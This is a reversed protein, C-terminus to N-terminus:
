RESTHNLESTEDASNLFDQAAASSIYDLEDLNSTLSQKRVSRDVLGQLIMSNKVSQFNSLDFVEPEPFVSQGHLSEAQTSRWYDGFAEDPKKLAFTASSAAVDALQVGSSAKSDTFRLKEALNFTLQNERGNFSAKRCDSRGVMADMFDKGARLPKSDDCTVILPEMSEGSLNVLLSRLATVTLELIWKVAGADRSEGEFMELESQIEKENCIVITSIANLFPDAGGTRKALRDLVHSLRSSDRDRMLRQFEILTQTAFASNAVAALFIGNAVFKHFGNAYFYSSGNSLIPEIMYEFLKGALCYRKHFCVVEYRGVIKSLIWKIATQGRDTKLLAISHIEEGLFKFKSRAEAVIADAEELPMCVASYAFYPQDPHWLNNGDFGSEDCFVTKM